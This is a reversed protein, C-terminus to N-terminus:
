PEEESLYENIYNNNTKRIENKPGDFIKRGDHIMIIRRTLLFSFYIDHTVVITTMKKESELELIHKAVMRATIPDLGTTPEDYLMIRPDGALARAIAVRKKMRESLQAPM